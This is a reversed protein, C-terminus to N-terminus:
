KALATRVTDATQNGSDAGRPNDREIVGQGNRQPPLRGLGGQFLVGITVVLLLSASALGFQACRRESVM